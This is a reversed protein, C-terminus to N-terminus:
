YFFHKGRIVRNGSISTPSSTLNSQSESKKLMKKQILAVDTKYDSIRGCLTLDVGTIIAERDLDQSLKTLVQAGENIENTSLFQSEGSIKWENIELKMGEFRRLVEAARTGLSSRRTRM